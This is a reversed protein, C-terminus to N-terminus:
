IVTAEVYTSSNELAVIRVDHDQQTTEVNSISTANADIRAQLGVLDNILYEIRGTSAPLMSYKQQCPTSFIRWLQGSNTAHGNAFFVDAFFYDIYNGQADKNTAPVQFTNDLWNLAFNMATTFDATSNPRVLVEKKYLAM